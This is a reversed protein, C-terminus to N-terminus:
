AWLRWAWLSVGAGAVMMLLGLVLVLLVLMGRSLGSSWSRRGGESEVELRSVTSVYGVVDARKELASPDVDLVPPKGVGFLRTWAVEAADERANEIFQGDYWYRAAFNMGDVTM